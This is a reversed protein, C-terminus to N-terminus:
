CWACAWETRATRAAGPAPGSALCDAVLWAARQAAGEVSATSIGLVRAAGAEDLGVVVRLLLVNALEPPLAGVVRRIDGSGDAGVGAHVPRRHQDHVQRHALSAAWVRLDTGDGQFSFVERAI